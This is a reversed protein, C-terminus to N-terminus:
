GVLFCTTNAAFVNRFEVADDVIVFSVVEAEGTVEANGQIAEVLVVLNATLDQYENGAEQPLEMSIEVDEFTEGAKLTAWATKYSYLSSYEVGAISIKLGELLKYAEKAQVSVRYQITVNSNNTGAVNFKVKDGPIIKDLTVDGGAVTAKGGMTFSGDTRGAVTKDDELSWTELDEIGAVLEVKGSTVAINVKSESTFLAFTAGSILTLCLVLTMLSVLLHRKKM